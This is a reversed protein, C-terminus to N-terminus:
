ETSLIHTKSQLGAEERVYRPVAYGSLREKLKETLERGVEDDVEFHATGQVRDLQHLYYPIIGNDVLKENLAILTEENDNVGHLLVSQNLVPIGLRQIKKLAEAVEEDIELPHNIHTTFWVQLKSENLISLLNKDVREPIGIPFRTHFRLRRLHPIEGLKEILESLQDNDLALPDGGSLIVERITEDEAIYSLEKCFHDSEEKELHQRFCFRCHMGCAPTCLLLVRGEYKKLLRPAVCAKQEELPDEEFDFTLQNEQRLPVFQKLLPDDLTGKAMKEALRMPVLLPLNWFSALLKREDCGLQLFDALVDLKTFSQRQIKRWKPRM